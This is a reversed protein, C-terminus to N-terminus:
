THKKYKISVLWKIKWVPTWMLLPRKASPSSFFQFSPTWTGYLSLLSVLSKAPKNDKYKDEHEM